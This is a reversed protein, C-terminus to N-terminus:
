NRVEPKNGSCGSEDGTPTFEVKGHSVLRAALVLCLHADENIIATHIHLEGDLQFDAVMNIGAKEAIEIIKDMLPRIKQEYIQTREKM